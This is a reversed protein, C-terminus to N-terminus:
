IVEVAGHSGKSSKTPTLIGSLDGIPPIEQGRLLVEKFGQSINLESIPAIQRRKCNRPTPKPTPFPAELDLEDSVQKQHRVTTNEPSSKLTEVQRLQPM